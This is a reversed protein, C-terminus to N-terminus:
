NFYWECHFLQIGNLLPVWNMAVIICAYFYKRMMNSMTLINTSINQHLKLREYNIADIDICNLGLKMSM